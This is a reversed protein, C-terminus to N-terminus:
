DFAFGWYGSEEGCNYVSVFDKKIGFHEFGDLAPTRVYANDTDLAAIAGLANKTSILEPIILDLDNFRLVAMCGGNFSFFSGSWNTEWWELLRPDFDAFRHGNLLAKRREAYESPSIITLAIPEASTEVNGEYVGFASKFGMKGYWNFLSEEAPHLSAKGGESEILEACARSVAEGCGHGRYEPLTSVAYIYPHPEGDVTIGDIIYAAAAISGEVDAVFGRGPLIVNDLFDGVFLYNDGFVTHWLHLLQERDRGEFKRIKM